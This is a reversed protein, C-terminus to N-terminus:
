DTRSGGRLLRSDANWNSLRKSSIATSKLLYGHQFSTKSKMIFLLTERV